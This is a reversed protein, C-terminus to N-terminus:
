VSSVGETQPPFSLNIPCICHECLYVCGSAPCLGPSSGSGTALRVCGRLWSDAVDLSTSCTLIWPNLFRTAAGVLFGVAGVIWARYDKTYLFLREETHDLMDGMRQFRSELSRFNHDILDNLISM